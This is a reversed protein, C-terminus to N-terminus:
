TSQVEHCAEALMQGFAAEPLEMWASLEPM